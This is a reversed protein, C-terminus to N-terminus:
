HSVTAYEFIAWSGCETDKCGHPIPSSILTRTASCSRASATGGFTDWHLWTASYGM